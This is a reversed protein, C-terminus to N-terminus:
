AVHQRFVKTFASYSPVLQDFLPATQELRAVWELAETARSQRFLLLPLLRMRHSASMVPWIKPEDEQLAQIVHEADTLKELEPVAFTAVHDALVNELTTDSYRVGSLSSLMRMTTKIAGSEPPLLAGLDEYIVGCSPNIIGLGFNLHVWQVASSALTRRWEQGTRPREFGMPKLAADVALLYREKDAKKMHGLTFTVPVNRRPAARHLIGLPV